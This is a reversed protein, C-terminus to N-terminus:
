QMQRKIEEVDIEGAIERGNLQILSLRDNEDYQVIVAWNRDMITPFWYDATRRYIYKDRVPYIMSEARDPFARLRAKNNKAIQEKPVILPHSAEGADILVKEVFERPTGVPFLKQLADVM